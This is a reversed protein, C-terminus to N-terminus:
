REKKKHQRFLGTITEDDDKRVSSVLWYIGGALAAVVGVWILLAVAIQGITISEDLPLIPLVNM